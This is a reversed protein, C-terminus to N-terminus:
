SQPARKMMSWRSLKCRSNRATPSLRKATLQNSIVPLTLGTFYFPRAPKDFIEIIGDSYAQEKVGDDDFDFATIGTGFGYEGTDYGTYTNGQETDWKTMEMVEDTSIVGVQTFNFDKSDDKTFETLVYTGDDERSITANSFSYSRAIKAM